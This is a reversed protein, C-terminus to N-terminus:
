LLVRASGGLTSFSGLAHPYYKADEKNDQPAITQIAKHVMVMEFPEPARVVKRIACPRLPVFFGGAILNPGARPPAIALRQPEARCRGQNRVWTALRERAKV